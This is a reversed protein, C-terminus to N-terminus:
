CSLSLTCKKVSFCMSHVQSVPVVTSSLVFSFRLFTCPVPWLLVFHVHQSYLGSQVGMLVSCAQRGTPFVFVCSVVVANGDDDEATSWHVHVVCRSLIYLSFALPVVFCLPSLLFLSVIFLFFLCWSLRITTTTEIRSCPAALVVVFCPSVFPFLILCSSVSDDDDCCVAVISVVAVVVFCCFLM